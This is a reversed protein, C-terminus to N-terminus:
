DNEMVKFGSCKRKDCRHTRILGETLWGGHVKCEAVAYHSFNGDILEFLEEKRPPLKKLRERRRKLQRKRNGRSKKNKLTKKVGLSLFHSNLM